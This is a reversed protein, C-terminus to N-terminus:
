FGYPVCVKQLVFLQEVVILWTEKRLKLQMRVVIPSNCNWVHRVSEKLIEMIHMKVLMSQFSM